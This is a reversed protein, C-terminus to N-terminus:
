KHAKAVSTTAGALFDVFDTPSGAREWARRQRDAGTGDRRLRELGAFVDEADGSAALAPTVKAMLRAVAGGAPSDDGPTRSRPIRVQGHAATILHADVLGTPIPLTTINRRAEDILTAVLARVVGAFFVTDPVGLCADAVRIEVTPYRESLRALFYVGSRDLAAGASVLSGVVRDYRVAGAWAGPPRFTPWRQQLHFRYSAWGTDRDGAFPSNVTLALLAPLWPRIRALVEVALDRDPVGIHVQCACTGGAAVAGPFRGALDRYRAEDTVADLPGAAFPPTGVAVLSAGARSAADAARSRLRVLERRLRDLSTCVATTTELQCSLFEPKIQDGAAALRAVRPASPVVAGDPALLLFEEEVGMTLM